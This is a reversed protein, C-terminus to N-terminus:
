IAFTDIESEECTDKTEKQTCECGVWIRQLEMSEKRRTYTRKAVSAKVKKGEYVRKGVLLQLLRILTLTCTWCTNSELLLRLLNLKLTGFGIKRASLFLTACARCTLTRRGRLM